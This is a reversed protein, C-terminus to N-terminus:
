ECRSHTSPSPSADPAYTFALTGTGGSRKIPRSRRSAPGEIDNAIDLEPALESKSEPRTRCPKLNM